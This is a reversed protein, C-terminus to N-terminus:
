CHCQALVRGRAGVGVPKHQISRRACRRVKAARTARQVNMVVNLAVIPLRWSVPWLVLSGGAGDAPRTMVM